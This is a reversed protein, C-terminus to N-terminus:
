AEGDPFCFEALAGAIADVRLLEKVTELQDELTLGDHALRITLGLPVARMAPGTMARTVLAVLDQFDGVTVGDLLTPDARMNRWVEIGRREEETFETM